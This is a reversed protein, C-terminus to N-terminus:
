TKLRHSHSKIIKESKKRTLKQKDQGEFTKKIM